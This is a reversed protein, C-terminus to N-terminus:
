RSLLIFVGVVKKELKLYKGMPLSPFIKYCYAHNTKEQYIKGTFYQM